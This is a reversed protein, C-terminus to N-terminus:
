KNKAQQWIEEMEDLTMEPLTTGRGVAAHEIQSFRHLFKQNTRELADEPDVGYKRCTNVLAFFVDGFEEVMKEHNDNAIEEEVEGIEEKVKSWVDEKNKWDFGVSAAKETIRFAKVMAPLSRPVGGMIGEKRNKKKLKLTEWNLRVEEPTDALVDSYIHPHRYILKDCLDNVVDSFEFQGQEKAIKSYFAIHLLVDGLEERIGAWDHQTVAQTLEFTEEITNNRLSDITQERDWPCKERLTDLIELLRLIAQANENMAFLYLAFICNKSM